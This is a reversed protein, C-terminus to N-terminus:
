PELGGKWRAVLWRNPLVSAPDDFYFLDQEVALLQPMNAAGLLQRGTRDIILLDWVADMGRSQM